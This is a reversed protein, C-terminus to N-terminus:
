AAPQAMLKDYIDQSSTEAAIAIGRDNALSVLYDHPFDEGKITVGAQARAKVVEPTAAKTVIRNVPKGKSAPKVLKAVEAKPVAVGADAAMKSLVEEAKDKPLATDLMPVLTVGADLADAIDQPVYRWVKGDAKAVEHKAPSDEWGPPVDAASQFVQAEGDPSYRMSPWGTSVLHGRPANPHKDVM